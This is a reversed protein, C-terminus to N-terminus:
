KPPAFDFPMEIKTEVPRGRVVQPLFRWDRIATLTATGFAPNTASKLKAERVRGRADVLFDVVARGRTGAQLLTRPYVPDPGIFVRVPAADEGAIRDAVMKDLAAERVPPPLDSTLVEVGRFFVHYHYKGSGVEGAVPVQLFVPDPIGARLPGIQHVFLVHGRRDTHMDLVIFTDDLAFPSEFTASFYLCYNIASTELQDYTDWTKVDRVSVFFPMFEKVPRLALRNSFVPVLKGKDQVCPQDGSVNHVLMFKGDHEAFFALQASLPAVPAALGLVLPLLACRQVVSLCRIRDRRPPSM